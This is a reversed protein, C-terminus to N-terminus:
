SKNGITKIQTKYDVLEKSIDFIFTKPNHTASDTGFIESGEFGNFAIM